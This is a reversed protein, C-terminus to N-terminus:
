GKALFAALREMAEVLMGREVAYCIRISGEGGAGFAVGPALSLRAEKVLRECFGFSDELGEIRPFLYFAGDPQPVTVGPMERLTALCYDRNGRYLALMERIAAEGESLATEGARQAFAPASSIIFENLKTAREALDKRAVIWGVRWGTM